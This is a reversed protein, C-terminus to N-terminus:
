PEESIRHAAQPAIPLKPGSTPTPLTGSSRDTGCFNERRANRFYKVCKLCDNSYIWNAFGTEDGALAFAGPSRGSFLSRLM